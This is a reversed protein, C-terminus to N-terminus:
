LGQRRMVSTGFRKDAAVFRQRCSPVPEGQGAATAGGLPSVPDNRDISANRAGKMTVDKTNTGTARPNLCVDTDASANDVQRGHGHRYCLRTM